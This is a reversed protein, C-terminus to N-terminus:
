GRPRGVGISVNFAGANQHAAVKAQSAQERLERPWAFIVGGRRTRSLSSTWFHGLVCLVGGVQEHGGGSGESRSETRALIDRVYARSHPVPSTWCDSNGTAVSTAGDLLLGGPVRIMCADM